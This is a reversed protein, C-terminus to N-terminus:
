SAPSSGPGSRTAQDLAETLLTEATRQMQQTLAAQAQVIRPDDAAKQAMQIGAKIMEVDVRLGRAAMPDLPLFFDAWEEWFAQRAAILCDSAMREGFDAATIQQGAFQPECLHALLEWFLPFDTLLRERLTDPKQEADAQIPEHPEWLNFRSSDKIRQVTGITLDLTWPHGTKDKFQRM